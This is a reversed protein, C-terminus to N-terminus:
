LQKITIILKNNNYHASMESLGRFNKQQVSLLHREDNRVKKVKFDWFEQAEEKEWQVLLEKLGMSGLSVLCAQCAQSVLCALLDRKM